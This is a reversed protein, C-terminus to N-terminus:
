ARKLKSAYGGPSALRKATERDAKDKVASSGSGATYSGRDARVGSTKDIKKNNWKTKVGVNGQKNKYVDAYFREAFMQLVYNKFYEVHEPNSFNLSNRLYIIDQLFLDNM